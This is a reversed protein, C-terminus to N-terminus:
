AIEPSGAKQFCASGQVRKQVCRSQVPKKIPMSKSYSHVLKNKLINFELFNNFFKRM